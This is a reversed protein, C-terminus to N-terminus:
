DGHVVDASTARAAPELVLELAAALDDVFHLRTRERLDAPVEDFAERRNRAPLVVERVGYRRAALMKAKLGGVPLLLGSLTLEGTMAVHPRVCRGTLLSVLSAAIVAGASPGDKPVAGAPIHLHLDSELRRPDIGFRGAHARVWSLAIRASERMVKGVHGTVVLRGETSPMSAAEVFLVEGGHPTWALAVAVGPRRTRHALDEDEHHRPTGLMREVDSPRLLSPACAGNGVIQRARKRCISAIQRELSRVGHEDTYGRILTSLAADTLELADPALGHADRQRPLLHARAIALKEEDVYGTLEIPEMRDRLAPPVPDLVNATAVFLVSSLDFPVGLYNDVFRANQEPDLVELLASAPDGRFDRGLKDVEDLMFVPDRANAQRLGRLIQGPLAGVYTRRHGRIEAEDHMGGLSIRVLERGLARAISRGLSTKGVGPPGWFCLIPGRTRPALRLVALYELIREKAKDLGVHDADLIRAAEALDVAHGTTRSWPLAGLWELYTRSMGHEPADPTMRELRELERRAEDAAPKPLEGREIRDRLADLERDAPEEGLERRLARLQEELFFRRQAEGIQAQAAERIRTATRQEERLKTLADVLRRLRTAVDTIALLAQREVVPLDVVAWAVFDTLLGPDEIEEASAPLDPAIPASAEIVEAYLAHVARRLAGHEIDDPAPTDHLRTLAVRPALRGKRLDGVRVRAIGELFCVVTRGEGSPMDAVRHVRALTGVDHLDARSHPEADPDRQTVTVVLGNAGLKTLATVLRPRDVAVALVTRPFLVQGALPLLLAGSPAVLARTADPELSETAM